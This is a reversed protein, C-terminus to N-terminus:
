SALPQVAQESGDLVIRVGQKTNEVEGCLGLAIATRYVWPRFGIGQVRGRVRVEARCHESRRSYTRQAALRLRDRSSAKMGAAAGSARNKGATTAVNGM